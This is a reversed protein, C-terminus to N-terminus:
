PHSEFMRASVNMKYGHTLHGGCSYDLGMLKQNGFRKRLMDFQEETLDNLSKVGLEELTPTEVKASLIAWYAVLNTDAGSHPQVYAYDAGFLAEAERAATNEVTDINVCGGYYRHEPYGEAYKDTLLNGMAAQVNLSCYNESAVLKLHSRQNELESVIAAAIDPGVAAVQQLNAVYATMATNPKGNCSAIYKELSTPMYLEKTKVIAM